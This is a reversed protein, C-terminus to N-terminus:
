GGTNGPGGFAECGGSVNTAFGAVTNDGCFRSVGGWVGHGAVTGTQQTNSHASIVHNNRMKMGRSRPFIARASKGSALMIGRVTNGSIEAGGGIANIGYVWSGGGSFVGSVTNDIVDGSAVIGYTTDFEGSAGLMNFVRNGVVRNNAGMARIGEKRNRDLYNNEVLHGGGLLDIGTQFGRIGCNHITANLINGAIGTAEAAGPTADVVFHNCDVTVNNAAITIAAGTSASHVLNKKLCWVGQTSITAPLSTIVGNCSDYSEAADAPVPSLALLGLAAACAILPLSFSCQM